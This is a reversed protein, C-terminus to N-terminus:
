SSHLVIWAGRFATEKRGVAIRGNKGDTCNGM